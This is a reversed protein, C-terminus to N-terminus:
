AAGFRAARCGYRSRGGLSARRRTVRCSSRAAANPVGDSSGARPLDRSNAGIGIRYCGPAIRWADATADWYSFARADLPLVVRRSEGPALEVKDFGKLQFPPQVEGPRPQPLGVYLQPVTIGRRAGTNRVVASVTADAGERGPELRLDSFAFTTYSLGAGFPFAVPLRRADYWRYGILVGEKYWTEVLANIKNRWPTLTPGATQLVVVTNLQASAVAEILGDQDGQNPCELTLCQRDAGEAGCDAVFLLAVDAGRAASTAATVNSGDSYTVESSSGTRAKIGALPTVLDFAEVNGSGGGFPIRDAFPGIVAISKDKRADLPLAGDNKLM